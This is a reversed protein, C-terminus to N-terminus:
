KSADPRDHGANPSLEAIVDAVACSSALRASQSPSYRASGELEECRTSAALANRTRTPPAGALYWTLPLAREGPAMVIRRFRKTEGKAIQGNLERDANRMSIPGRSRWTAVMTRVPSLAEGFAYTPNGPMDASSIALLVFRV